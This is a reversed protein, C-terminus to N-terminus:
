LIEKKNQCLRFKDILYEYYTGSYDFKIRKDKWTLKHFDSMQIIQNFRTEDFKDFLEFQLIHPPINSVRPVKKWLGPYRDVAMHFFMHFLFYNILNDYRDWYEELLLLITKLIPNEKEASIFWSSAVISQERNFKWDQIEYKPFQKRLSNLCMKCMEPSQDEGQLWCWWIKKVIAGTSQFTPLTTLYSGFKKKEFVFLEEM